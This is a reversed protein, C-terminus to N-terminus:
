ARAKLDPTELSQEAAPLNFRDQDFLRSDAATGLFRTMGESREVMRGTTM